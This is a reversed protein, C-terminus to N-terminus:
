PIRYLVFDSNHFVPAFRQPERAVHPALLALDEPNGSYLLLYSAGTRRLYADLAADDATEPYWASRLGTYLALVRPNWSVLLDHSDLHASLYRRLDIFTPQEPGQPFPGREMGGLNTVCGIALVVGAAAPLGRLSAPWKAALSEIGEFFYMFYLMLIPLLYRANPASSYVLVPLVACPVYIEVVSCDAALRRLWEGFVVVATAAALSYRLSAPSGAWLYAPAHLYFKLNNWYAPLHLRFQNGYARSDYFTLALLVVGAALGLLTAVGFPRPRRHRVVESVLVALALSLGVSRSGYALLMPPLVLTVALLPRTRDWGRREVLVLLALCLSAFFLYTTDSVIFDKVSLVLGALAFAAVAAASPLPKLGRLRALAYLCLCAALLLTQVLMKMPLYDLGFARYVPALLLPFVPPYNAPMHVAADPLTVQYRTEAYPRGLAINRAHAIYQSFDGGWDQGPRLATWYIPILVALIALVAFLDRSLNTSRDSAIAFNGM